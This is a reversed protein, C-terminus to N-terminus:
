TNRETSASAAMVPSTEETIPRPRPTSAASPSSASSRPNPIVSGAPGSTNSGRVARTPSATPTPTVTTAAIPGARLATRIGGTAASPSRRGPPSTESRRRNAPPIATASTPATSSAMPRISGAMASTPRPATATKRPTAITAGAIARGSDLTIPRGSARSSRSGPWSPRSFEMRLGRRVAWVAAASMTPRARTAAIDTNPADTDSDAVLLTSSAILALRSTVVALPDPSSLWDTGAVAVATGPTVAVV